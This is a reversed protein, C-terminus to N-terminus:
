AIGGIWRVEGLKTKLFFFLQPLRNMGQIVGQNVDVFARRKHRFIIDSRCLLCELTRSVDAVRRQCRASQALSLSTCRRAQFPYPRYSLQLTLVNPCRGSRNKILLCRVSIGEKLNSSVAIDSTASYSAYSSIRSLLM